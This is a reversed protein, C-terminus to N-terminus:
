ELLMAMNTLITIPNGIIAKSGGEPLDTPYTRKQQPNSAKRPQIAVPFLDLHHM